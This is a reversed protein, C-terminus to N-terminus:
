SSGRGRPGLSSPRARSRARPSANRREGRARGLLLIAPFDGIPTAAGGLNCAVLLVGLTWSVYRQEAGTLRLLVLLVPLVLVLATLNNVIGSMLYMGIAFVLTIKAPDARSARTAAVALRDFVRSAAFLQSLLGLAVLIVLVDWPVEALLQPTTAVGLRTSALSAIGAGLTVVLLRRSPVIASLVVSLVLIASLIAQPAIM